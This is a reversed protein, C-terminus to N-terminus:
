PVASYITIVQGQEIIRLYNQDILLIQDNGNLIPRFERPRLECSTSVTFNTCYNNGRNTSGAIKIFASTDYKSITGKSSDMMFLVDKGYQFSLFSDKNLSGMYVPNDNTSIFFKILKASDCNDDGGGNDSVACFRGTVHAINNRLSDYSVALKSYPVLDNTSGQATDGSLFVTSVSRKAPDDSHKYVRLKYRNGSAPNLPLVPDDSSFVVWQNPLVVFTGYADINASENIKLEKPDNLTDTTESTGGGAVYTLAPSTANPDFYSIKGDDLFWHVGKTDIFHRKVNKFSATGLPGETFTGTNPIFTSKINSGPSTDLLKTNINIIGATADKIFIEGNPAMNLSDYDPMVATYNAASEVYKTISTNSESSFNLLEGGATEHYLGTATSYLQADNNAIKSTGSTSITLVDKGTTGSENNSLLSINGAADKTFFYATTTFPLFGLFYNFTFDAPTLSPTTIGMSVLPGWCSDTTEPATSDDMRLCVDSVPTVSDSVGSIAISSVGGLVCGEPTCALGSDALNPAESDIQFESSEQTNSLNAEGISTVRIKFANSAQEFTGDTKRCRVDVLNPTNWTVVTDEGAGVSVVNSQITVASATNPDSGTVISNEPTSSPTPCTVVYEIKSVAGVRSTIRFLLDQTIGGRLYNSNVNLIEIIPAAPPLDNGSGTGGSSGDGTGTGPNSGPNGVDTQDGPNSTSPSDSGTTQSGKSAELSALDEM